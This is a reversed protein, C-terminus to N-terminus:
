MMKTEVPMEMQAMAVLPATFVPPTYKMSDRVM